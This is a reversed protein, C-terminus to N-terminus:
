GDVDREVRLRLRHFVPMVSTAIYQTPPSAVVNGDPRVHCEIALDLSVQDIEMMQSEAGEDDDPDSKPVLGGLLLALPPLDDPDDTPTVM